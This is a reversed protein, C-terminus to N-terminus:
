CRELERKKPHKKVEIIQAVLASELAAGIEFVEDVEAVRTTVIESFEASSLSSLDVYDSLWERSIKM